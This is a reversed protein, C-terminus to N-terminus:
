KMRRVVLHCLIRCPPTEGKEDVKKEWRAGGGKTELLPPTNAGSGGGRREFRSASPRKRGVWGEM